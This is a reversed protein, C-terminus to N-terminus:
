TPSTDSFLKLVVFALAPASLLGGFLMSWVPFGSYYLLAVLSFLLPLAPIAGILAAYLLGTSTSLLKRIQSGYILLAGLMLPVLFLIYLDVHSKSELVLAIGSFCGFGGLYANGSHESGKINVVFVLGIAGFLWYPLYHTLLSELFFGMRDAPIMMLGNLWLTIFRSITFWIAGIVVDVHWRRRYFLEATSIIGEFYFILFSVIAPFLVLWLIM